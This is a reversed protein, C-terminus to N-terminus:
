REGRGIDVAAVRHEYPAGDTHPLNVTYYLPLRVVSRFGEEIRCVLVAHYERAVVAFVIPKGVRVIRVSSDSIRYGIRNHCIVLEASLRYYYHLGILLLRYKLTREITTYPYPPLRIELLGYSSEKYSLVSVTGHM